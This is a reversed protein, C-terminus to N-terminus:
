NCEKLKYPYNINDIKRELENSLFTYNVFFTRRSTMHDLTFDNHEELGEEDIYIFDKILESNAKCYNDLLIKLSYIKNEHWDSHFYRIKDLSNYIQDLQVTNIPKSLILEARFILRNLKIIESLKSTPLDNNNAREQLLVLLSPDLSGNYNEVLKLEAEIKSKLTRISEKNNKNKELSLDLDDNLQSYKLNKEKISQNQADIVKNLSDISYTLNKNENKLNTLSESELKKKLSLNKKELEYFDNIQKNFIKLFIFDLKKEVNPLNYYNERDSKNQSFMKLSFFTFLIILFINRM